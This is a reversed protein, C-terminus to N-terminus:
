GNKCLITMSSFPAFAPMMCEIQGDKFHCHCANPFFADPLPCLANPNHYVVVGHSWLERVENQVCYQFANPKVANKEHNYCLGRHIMMTNFMDFGREKGIRNFKPLTGLPNAIVASLHSAEPHTFFFASPIQTGNRKTYPAIKHPTIILKDNEIEWTQSIGYLLDILSTYSWTMSFEKHFDQIAIIFPKESLGEKKWYHTKISDNKHSYTKLSLKNHLAASWLIPMDNKLYKDSPHKYEPIIADDNIRKDSLTVAEVGITQRDKKLVFDPSNRTRDIELRDETFYNFLYLEWLRQDFGTSQFQQVFNGDVDDYYPMIAEILHKASNWENDNKLQRFIRNQKEQPVIDKFLLIRKKPHMTDNSEKKCERLSLIKLYLWMFANRMSNFDTASDISRFRGNEDRSLLVSSFNCDVHDLLITGLFNETEDAFWAFEEVIFELRKIQNGTYVDFKAKSIQHLKFKLFKNDM